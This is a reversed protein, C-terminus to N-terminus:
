QIANNKQIPWFISKQCNINKISMYGKYTCQQSTLIQPIDSISLTNLSLLAAYRLFIYIAVARAGVNIIPIAYSTM